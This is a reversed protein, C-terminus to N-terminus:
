HGYQRPDRISSRKQQIQGSRAFMVRLRFSRPAFKEPDNRGRAEPVFAHNFSSRRKFKTDSLLGARWLQFQNCAVAGRGTCFTSLFESIKEPWIAHQDLHFRAALVQLLWSLRAQAPLSFTPSFIVGGPKGNGGLSCASNTVSSQM